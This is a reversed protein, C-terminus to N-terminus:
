RARRGSVPVLGREVLTRALEDAARAHGAGNWHHDELQHFLPGEGRADAAAFGDTPDFFEIAHAACFDRLARNIRM